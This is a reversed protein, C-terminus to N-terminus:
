GVGLRGLSLTLAGSATAMGAWQRYEKFAKPFVETALSAIVTGSAVCRIAALHAESAGELLLTGSIAASSLLAAVEM